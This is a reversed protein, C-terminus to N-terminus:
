LELSHVRRPGGDISCTVPQTSEHTAVGDIEHMAVPECKRGLIEADGDQANSSAHALGDAPRNAHGTGSGDQVLRGATGGSVEMQEAFELRRRDGVLHARPSRRIASAIRAM